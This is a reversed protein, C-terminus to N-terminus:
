KKTKTKPKTTKAVKEVKISKPKDETKKPKDGLADGLIELQEEQNLGNVYTLEFDYKKDNKTKPEANVDVEEVLFNYAKSKYLRELKEQSYDNYGDFMVSVGDNIFTTSKNNYEEKLQFKTTKM